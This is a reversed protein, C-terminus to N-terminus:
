WRKLGITDRLTITHFRYYTTQVQAYFLKSPNQFILQLLCFTITKFNITVNFNLSYFQIPEPETYKKKWFPIKQENAISLLLEIMFSKQFRDNIKIGRSNSKACRLIIM